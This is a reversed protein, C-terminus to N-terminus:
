GIKEAAATVQETNNTFKIRKCYYIDAKENRFYLM